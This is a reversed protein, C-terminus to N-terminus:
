HRMEHLSLPPSLYKDLPFIFIQHLPAPSQHFPIQDNKSHDGGTGGYRVAKPVGWYSIFIDAKQCTVKAEIIYPNSIYLHVCLVLFIEYQKGNKVSLKM